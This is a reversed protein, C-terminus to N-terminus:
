PRSMLIFGHQTGEYHNYILIRQIPKKAAKKIVEQPMKKGSFLNAALWVAFSSVTYYDAV